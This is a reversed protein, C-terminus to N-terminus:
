TRYVPFPPPPPTTWMSRILTQAFRWQYRDAYCHHRRCEHKNTEWACVSFFFLLFSFKIREMRPRAVTACMRSISRVMKCQEDVLCCLSTVLYLGASFRLASHHGLPRTHAASSGYLPRAIYSSVSLGPALADRVTTQLRRGSPPVRPLTDRRELVLETKFALHSKNERM